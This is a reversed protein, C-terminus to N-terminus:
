GPHPPGPGTPCFSPLPLAFDAFVVGWGPASVGGLPAPAPRDSAWRPTSTAVTAPVCAGAPRRDGASCPGGPSRGTRPARASSVPQRRIGSVPTPLHRADILASGTVAAPAAVGVDTVPTNSQTM